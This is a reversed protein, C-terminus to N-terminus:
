SPFFKESFLDKSNEVVLGNLGSSGRYYFTRDEGGWVPGALHAKGFMVMSIDARRRIQLLVWLAQQGPEQGCRQRVECRNGGGRGSHLLYHECKGSSPTVRPVSFKGPSARARMYQM